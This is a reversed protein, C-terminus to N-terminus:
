CASDFLESNENNARIASHGSWLTAFTTVDRVCREHDIMVGYFSCHLAWSKGNIGVTERESGNLVQMYTVVGQAEAARVAAVSTIKRM